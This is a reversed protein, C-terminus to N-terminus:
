IYISKVKGWEPFLRIIILLALISLIIPLITLHGSGLIMKLPSQGHDTLATMMIIGGQIKGFIASLGGTIVAWLAAGNKTVSLRYKFLAAIAPCIEGSLLSSKRHL